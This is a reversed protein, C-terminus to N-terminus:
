VVSSIISQFTIEYDQAGLLKKGQPGPKYSTLSGNQMTWLKGLAPSELTFNIEVDDGLAQIGEALADMIDISTSTAMLIFKFPVLFAVYGSSKQGDVGIKVEVPKVALMDFADDAEFGQIQVPGIELASVTMTLVSNYSTLTRAM